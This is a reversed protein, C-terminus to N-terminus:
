VYLCMVGWGWVCVFVVFVVCVRVPQPGSLVTETADAPAQTPRGNEKDMQPDVQGKSRGKLCPLKEKVVPWRKRYCLHYVALAVLIVILLLIVIVVIITM